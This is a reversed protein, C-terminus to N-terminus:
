TLDITEGEVCNLSQEFSAVCVKLVSEYRKSGVLFDFKGSPPNLYTRTVFPVKSTVVIDTTETESAKFRMFAENGSFTIREVNPPVRVIVSNRTGESFAYVQESTQVIQKLTNEANKRSIQEEVSPSFYLYAVIGGILLLIIFALLLIYETSFQGKKSM